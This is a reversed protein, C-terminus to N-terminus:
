VSRIIVFIIIDTCAIFLGRDSAPRTKTEGGRNSFGRDCEAMVIRYSNDRLSTDFTATTKLGRFLHFLIHDDGM